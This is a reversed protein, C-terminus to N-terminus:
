TTRNKQKIILWCIGFGCAYGCMDLLVDSFAGYRGSVFHQILEDTCPVALAALIGPHFPLPSVKQATCILIGLVFYETFHAGKRILHHMLEFSVGHKELQLFEYLWRTLSGSMNGSADGDMLSNSFIWFIYIISIIWLISKKGRM